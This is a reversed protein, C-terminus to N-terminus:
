ATMAVMVSSFRLNANRRTQDDADCAANIAPM